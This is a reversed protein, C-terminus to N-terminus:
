LVNSNEEVQVNVIYGKGVFGNGQFVIEKGVPLVEDRCKIYRDSVEGMCEVTIVADYYDYAKSKVFEGALIDAQITESEYIEVDKVTGTGTSSTGFTIASGVTYSSCVSFKKKTVEVNFTIKHNAASVAEAGSKKYLYWAGGAVALCLFLIIIYDLSNFKKKM